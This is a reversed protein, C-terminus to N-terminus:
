RVQEIRDKSLTIMAIRATFVGTDCAGNPTMHVNTASAVYISHENGPYSTAAQANSLAVLTAGDEALGLAVSASSDEVTDVTLNAGLIFTEAPIQAVVVSNNAGINQAACNHTAKLVRYKFKRNMRIKNDDWKPVANTSATSAM